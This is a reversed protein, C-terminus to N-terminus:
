LSTNIRLPGEILVPTRELRESLEGLPCQDPDVFFIRGGKSGSKKFHPLRVYGHKRTAVYGTPYDDDSWCIEAVAGAWLTKTAVALAEMTRFHTLGASNLTNQAMDRGAASYDFTSVRVGRSFQTDLRAGSQWHWLAAGRLTSGDDGLGSGLKALAFQFIPETIGSQALVDRAIAAAEATNTCTCSTIPLPPIRMPSDALRESTVQLFGPITGRSLARATLEAVTHSVQEGSVIREAGAIHRGGQEHPKEESARMRINWLETM